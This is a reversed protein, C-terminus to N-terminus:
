SVAELAQRADSAQAGHKLFADLMLVFWLETSRDANGHAHENISSTVLDLDVYDAVPGTRDAALARLRLQLPGTLWSDLPLHFGQKPRDLVHDPVRNRLAQRFLQKGRGRRLKAETPLGAVYTVFDTDLLPVRVELGHAMSMRDVKVLIDDALWTRFDMALTRSLPDLGESPM